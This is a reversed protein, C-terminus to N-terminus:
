RQAHDASPATDQRCLVMGLPSKTLVFFTAHPSNEVGGLVMQSRGQQVLINDLHVM